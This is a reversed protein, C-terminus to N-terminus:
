KPDEDILYRKNKYVLHQRGSKETWIHAIADYPKKIESLKGDVYIPAVLKEVTVISYGQAELIYTIKGVDQDTKKPTYHYSTASQMSVCSMMAFFGLIVLLKRM